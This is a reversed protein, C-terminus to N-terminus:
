DVAAPSQSDPVPQTSLAPRPEGGPRTRTKRGFWMDGGDDSYIVRMYQIRDANVCVADWKEGIPSPDTDGKPRWLMKTGGLVIERADAQEDPSFHRVYGWFETEDDLRLHVWTHAHHPRDDWLVQYWPGFRSVTGEAKRTVFWAALAALGCAAVVELGLGGFVAGPHRSLYRNGQTIWQPVDPVAGQAVLRLLALLAIAVLTFGLSALALQSVERFATSSQRPRRRETVLAFTIGPAVLGLFALLAGFTSPIV